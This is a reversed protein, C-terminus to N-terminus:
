QVVPRTREAADPGGPRVIPAPMTEAAVGAVSAAAKSAAHAEKLRLLYRVHDLGDVSGTTALLPHVAYENV